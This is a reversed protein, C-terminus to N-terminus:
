MPNLTKVVSFNWSSNFLELLPQSNILGSKYCWLLNYLEGGVASAKLYKKDSHM